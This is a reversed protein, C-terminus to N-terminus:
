FTTSLNFQRSWDVKHERCLGNTVAFMRGDASISFSNNSALKPFYVIIRSHEIIIGLAKTCYILFLHILEKLNRELPQEFNCRIWRVQGQKHGKYPYTNDKVKPSTGKPRSYSISCKVLQITILNM